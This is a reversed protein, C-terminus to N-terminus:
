ISVHLMECGAKKRWWLVLSGQREGKFHLAHEISAGLQKGFVLCKRHGGLLESPTKTLMNGNQKHKAPKEGWGTRKEAGQKRREMGVSSFSM